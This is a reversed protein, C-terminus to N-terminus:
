VSKLSTDTRSKWRLVECDVGPLFKSPVPGSPGQTTVESSSGGPAEPRRILVRTLPSVRCSELVDSMIKEVALVISYRDSNMVSSGPSMMAVPVGEPTACALFGGGQIFAPSSTSTSTSFIPTSELGITSSLHALAGRADDRRQEHAFRALPFLGPGLEGRHRERTLMAHRAAIRM